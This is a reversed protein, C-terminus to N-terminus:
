GDALVPKKATGSGNDCAPLAAIPANTTFKHCPMKPANGFTEAPEKIKLIIIM